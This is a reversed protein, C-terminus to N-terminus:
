FPYDSHLYQFWPTRNDSYIQYKGKIFAVELSLKEIVELRQKLSGIKYVLEMTLCKLPLVPYFIPEFELDINHKFVMTHQYVLQQHEAYHVQLASWLRKHTIETAKHIATTVRPGCNLSHLAKMSQVDLLLIILEMVETPLNEFYSQIHERNSIQEM